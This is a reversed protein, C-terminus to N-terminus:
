SDLINLTHPLHRDYTGLLCAISYNVQVSVSAANPLFASPYEGFVCLPPSRQLVARTHGGAGDRSGGLAAGPAWCSEAQEPYVAQLPNKGDKELRRVHYKGTAAHPPPRPFRPGLSQLAAPVM